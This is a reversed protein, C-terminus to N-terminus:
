LVDGQPILAAAVRAMVDNCRARIVLDAEGDRPTPQLNVIITRLPPGTGAFRRRRKAKFPLSAAPEVRLTSGLVVTVDSGLFKANALTIEKWPLQEDFHIINDKLIGGCVRGNSLVQDCLRGTEHAKSTPLEVEFDRHYLHCCDDCVEIFLNGHLEAMKERLFGARGLIDDYNQSALCHVFGAKELSVLARHAVTPEPLDPANAATAASAKRKKGKGKPPAPQSAGRTWLGNTGRFTPLGASASLGAGVLWSTRKGKRIWDILTACKAAVIDESDFEEAVADEKWNWEELAETGELDEESVWSPKGGDMWTCLFSKGGQKNIKEKTISGVDAMEIGEAETKTTVKKTKVLKGKLAPKVHESAPGPESVALDAQSHEPKIKKRSSMKCDFSVPQQCIVSCASCLLRM